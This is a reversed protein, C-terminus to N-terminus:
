FGGDALCPWPLSWRPRERGKGGKAEEGGEALPEEGEQPSANASLTVTESPPATRKQRSCAALGAAAAPGWGGDGSTTVSAQVSRGGEGAAAEASTLSRSRSTVSGPPPAVRSPLPPATRSEALLTSRTNAGSAKKPAEGAEVSPPGTEITTLPRERGRPPDCGNASVTYPAAAAALAREPSGGLSTGTESPATPPPSHAEAGLSRGAIVRLGGGSPFTEVTEKAKSAGKSDDDGGAADVAAAPGRGAAFAAFAAAASAEEDGKSHLSDTALVPAVEGGGSKAQVRQEDGRSNRERGSPPYVKETRLEATPPLVPLPPPPTVDADNATSVAAGVASITPLSAGIREARRPATNANPAAAPSAEATLKSHLSSRAKLAPPSVVAAAAAAVFSVVGTAAAAGTM